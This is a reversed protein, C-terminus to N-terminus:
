LKSAAEFLADLQAPKLGLEEAIAQVYPNAKEWFTASNFFIRVPEYPHAQVIARVMPLLGKQYLATQAQASSVRLVPPSPPAAFTGAELNVLKGEYAKHPTPDAPDHGLIEIIRGNAPPFLTPVDRVIAACLSGAESVLCTAKLSDEHWSEPSWAFEYWDLADSVRRAFLAGSPAGEPRVDPEYREWIGHDIVTTTM